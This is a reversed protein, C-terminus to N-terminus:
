TKRGRSLNGRRRRRQAYRLSAGSAMARLLGPVNEASWLGGETILGSCAQLPTKEFYFNRIRLNNASRKMVESSKEERISFSRVAASPLFKFSDAVVYAPVAAIRAMRLLAHTGVKNVFGDPFFADCGVLVLDAGPLSALLGSDTFLDIPIAQAALRQAMIRGEYM